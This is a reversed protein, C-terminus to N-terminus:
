PRRKLLESHWPDLSELSAESRLLATSLQGDADLPPAAGWQEEYIANLEDQDAGVIRRDQASWDDIAQSMRLARPDTCAALEGDHLELVDAAGDIGEGLRAAIEGGPHKERLTTM